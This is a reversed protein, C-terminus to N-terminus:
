RWRLAGPGMIGLREEEGLHGEVPLWYHRALYAPINLAGQLSSLITVVPLHYSTGLWCLHGLRPLVECSWVWIYGVQGGSLTRYM